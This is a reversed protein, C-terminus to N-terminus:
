QRLRLLLLLKSIARWEKICGGGYDASNTKVTCTKQIKQKLLPRLIRKIGQKAMPRGGRTTKEKRKKTNELIKQTSKKLIPKIGINAM